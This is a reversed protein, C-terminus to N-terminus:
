LDLGDEFIITGIGRAILCLIVGIIVCVIQQNSTFQLFM